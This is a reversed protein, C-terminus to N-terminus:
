VKLIWGRRKLWPLVACSIAAAAIAYLMSAVGPNLGTGALADWTVDWIKEGSPLKRVIVAILLTHVVYLTLAAQGLTVTWRAIGNAGIVPWLARLTAWFVLGAGSTVLAFSATWLNKNLPIWPTLVLGAVTILAGLGSLRLNSVDKTRMWRMVAIGILANVIASLTSLVGEPEWTKRLVRGPIFHQDLWGSLGMGPELSAPGGGPAGVKLLLFSHLVLLTLSLAVAFGVGKRVFVVAACVLYVIAIRQLVGTWRIMEPDLTPKIAYSLAVGIMFLLATRRLIAGWGFTARPRDLALPASLGVILLFVPFVFDALTVGHWDVHKIFPFAAEGNGQVNVLIMLLVDIGRFSDLSQDRAPASSKV